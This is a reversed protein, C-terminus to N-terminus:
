ENNNEQQEEIKTETEPQVIEADQVESTQEVADNSQKEINKVYEAFEEPYKSQVFGTLISLKSEYQLM